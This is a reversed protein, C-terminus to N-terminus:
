ASSGGTAPPAASDSAAQPRRISFVLLLLLWADMFLFLMVSAFYLASGQDPLLGLVIAVLVLTAPAWLGDRHARDM